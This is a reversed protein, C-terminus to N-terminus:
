RNRRAPAPRRRRHASWLGVPHVGLDFLAGGGWEPTLSSRWTPPAQVARASLHTLPGLSGVVHDAVRRGGTIGGPARLLAGSPRRTSRGRRHPRGRRAHLRDTGRRRGSLRCGAVARRRRRTSAPPTAVIALDRSRASRHRRRRDHGPASRRAGPGRVDPTARPSVARIRWELSRCAAAHVGAVMGSGWLVVDPRREM